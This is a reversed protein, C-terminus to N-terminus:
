KRMTIVYSDPQGSIHRNDFREMEMGSEELERLFAENDLPNYRDPHKKLWPHKLQQSNMRELPWVDEIIYLGGDKLFPSCHRFTLMNAKPWHAGDDLIYDFEVGFEKRLLSTTSIETTDGIAYHARPHSLVPVDNPTMRTFIDIGYVNAKPFYELLAEMGKGLWIGVELFNIEKNRNEKFLPEYIEHYKHKSSKDAGFKDFITKLENM